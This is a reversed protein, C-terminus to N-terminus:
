PWGFISRSLLGLGASAGNAVLSWGLSWRLGFARTYAAEVLVAFAEAQIVMVWYSGPAYRPFAFWVFPHTIASAGFAIVVNIWMPWPTDGPAVRRDWRLAQAWIPIEVAQTFTFAALWDRLQPTL